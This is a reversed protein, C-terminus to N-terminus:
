GVCLQVPIKCVEDDRGEIYVSVVPVLQHELWSTASTLDSSGAVQEADLDKNIWIM